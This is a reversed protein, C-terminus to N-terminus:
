NEKYEMPAVTTKQSVDVVFRNNLFNRGILLQYQFNGRNALSVNVNRAIKGLILRLKVVPRKHAKAGHRKVYIYKVVKHKMTIGDITAVAWDEGDENIIEVSDIGISTISAGTDIRAKMVFDGPIVRVKEVEGIILKGGVSNEDADQSPKFFKEKKPKSRNADKSLSEAQANTIGLGLVIAGLWICSLLTKNKKNM